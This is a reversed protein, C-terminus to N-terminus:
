NVVAIKVTAKSTADDNTMLMFYVGSAVRKGKQNNLNWEYFGGRAIASHVLNGAADTIRINAKNALGRITVNGRFQSQVVPNPYVTVNNFESTVGAVDGQYVVIGDFTVFYVKGTKEDIQIDTVTNTPLPSNEKTFQKLTQQGDESLYYVGGGDVSVWKHNGSDVAIQLVVNDRFLEEGIGNQTIIVPETQPSLDTLASEFNPLIRLGLRTGIWVDDNLDIAVSVIGNAPLNNALRFVKTPVNTSAPNTGYKKIVLGGDAAFPAPIFINGDKTVPKLVGSVTAVPVLSFDDIGQNYLYYGTGLPSNEIAFVTAFLNNNEDYTLGIPRNLYNNSADNSKYRKVFADNEMKYIGKDGAFNHNTFFVQSPNSPNPVVDMVNFLIPNNVFYQPYIWKTGDFHYYGFDRYIPGNYSVLGGTSVWLQNNLISLKYSANNYPGDPKYFKSDLDKVGSLKTGGYLKGLVFNATNCDEAFTVNTQATGTNSYVFIRTKDTIIIKSDKVEVDNIETFSAALTSFTAGNEYYVTNPTAFALTGNSVAQTFNGTFLTTWTTFVPFTVNLDHSLLGNATASYIKDGKITAEKSAIYSSGTNFFATAGFEKKELNFISVGYNVSVIASNGVISIHNIKKDGNFGQAVPIDVVYTIGEPSIIDMAGSTYGILGIKTTPNYDFATIKVEHLGNTKSLKTIEGNAIDYYFLGNETAAILKTDDQSIKLVNNYSFLDKWKKSSINQGFVLASCALLLVTSFIKRYFLNFNLQHHM